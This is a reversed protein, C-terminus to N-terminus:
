DQNFYPIWDLDDAVAISSVLFLIATIGLTIKFVKM